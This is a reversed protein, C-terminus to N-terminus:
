FYGLWKGVQYTSRIMPIIILSLVLSVLLLSLIQRLAQNDHAFSLVNYPLDRLGQTNLLFIVLLVFQVLFFIIWLSFWFHYKKPKILELNTDNNLTLNYVVQNEIEKNNIMAKIHYNGSKITNPVKLEYFGNSDNKITKVTFSKKLPFTSDTSFVLSVEKVETNVNYLKLSLFLKGTVRLESVKRPNPDYENGIKTIIATSRNSLKFQGIIVESGHEFTMQYPPLILDNPTSLKQAIFFYNDESIKKISLYRLDNKDNLKTIVEIIQENAENLFSQDIIQPKSTIANNVLEGSSNNLLLEYYMQNYEYKLKIINEQGLYFKLFGIHMVEPISYSWKANGEFDLKVIRATNSTMGTSYRIALYCHDSSYYIDIVDNYRPSFKSNEVKVWNFVIGIDDKSM